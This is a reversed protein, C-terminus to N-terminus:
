TTARRRQRQQSRGPDALRQAFGLAAPELQRQLCAARHSALRAQRLRPGPHRHPGPDPVPSRPLSRRHRVSGRHAHARSPPQLQRQVQRDFRVVSQRARHHLRDAPFYPADSRLQLLLVAQGQRDKRRRQRRGPQAKGAPQHHRLHGQRQFGSQPLVLLGHRPVLEIRQADRHQGRRRHRTRVRRFLQQLGGPVGARRGALDALHHPHPRRERQLVAETTDNGDTLFSNGGAIGRFSLLGFTGDPVVAPSLLVFSDVRRGNIPLDQIQTADVVQSVDTKTSDVLPASAEVQFRHPPPGAVPLSLRFDVNQGVLLQFEKVEYPLSARSPSPSAMARRPVLSPAAFVGADTTNM